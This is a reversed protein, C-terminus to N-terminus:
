LLLDNTNANSQRTPNKEIKTKHNRIDGCMTTTSLLEDEKKKNNNQIKTCLSQTNNENKKQERERSKSSRVTFKKTKLKSFALSKNIEKTNSSKQM